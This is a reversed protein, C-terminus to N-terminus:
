FIRQVDPASTIKTYGGHPHKSRHNLFYLDIGDPDHQTCVPTITAIAKEAEKWRRGQMSLSDDVVFITDFDALFAYPRDSVPPANEPPDATYGPPDWLGGPSDQRKDTYNLDSCPQSVATIKGGRRASQRPRIFKTGFFGM